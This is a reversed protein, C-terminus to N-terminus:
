MLVLADLPSHAAGCSAKLVHLCNMTTSMDSHGLLEQATRIDTGTQLLHTAFARCPTHSTATRVSCPLRSPANFRLHQRRRVEKRPCVSLDTKPLVL